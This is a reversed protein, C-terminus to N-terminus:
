TAGAGGAKATARSIGFDGLTRLQNAKDTEAILILLPTAAQIESGEALKKIQPYRAAYTRIYYTRPANPKRRGYRLVSHGNFKGNQTWVTKKINGHERANNGAEVAKVKEWYQDFERSNRSQVRLRESIKKATISMAECFLVSGESTRFFSIELSEKSSWPFPNEIEGVIESEPVTLEPTIQAQSELEDDDSNEQGAPPEKVRATYNSGNQAIQDYAAELEEALIQREEDSLNRADQDLRQDLSDLIEQKCGEAAHQASRPITSEIGDLARKLELLTSQLQAQEKKTSPVELIFAPRRTYTDYALIENDALKELRPTLNYSLYGRCDEVPLLKEIREVCDVLKEQADQRYEDINARLTEDSIDLDYQDYSIEQCIKEALRERSARITTERATRLAPRISGDLDHRNIYRNPTELCASDEDPSVGPYDVNVRSAANSRFNGVYTAAAAELLARSEDIAVQEDM